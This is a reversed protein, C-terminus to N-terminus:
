RVEVQSLRFWQEHAPIADAANKSRRGSPTTEVWAYIIPEGAITEVRTVRATQGKRDGALIRIEDGAGPHRM